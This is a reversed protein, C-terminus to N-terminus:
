SHRVISFITAPLGNQHNTTIALFIVTQPWTNTMTTIAPLIVTQPWTNTMTTIAPFIVTQPWTKTMTRIAPFIVTQNRPLGLLILPAYLTMMNCALIMM